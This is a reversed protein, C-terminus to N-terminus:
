YSKRPGRRPTSEIETVEADEPDVKNNWLINGVSGDLIEYAISEPDRRIGEKKYAEVAERMSDANVTAVGLHKGSKHTVNWARDVFQYKKAM